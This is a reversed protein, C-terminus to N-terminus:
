PSLGLCPIAWFAIMRRRMNRIILVAMKGWRGGGMKGLDICENTLFDFHTSNVFAHDTRDFLVSSEHLQSAALLSEEVDGLQRVFLCEIEEYSGIKELLGDM